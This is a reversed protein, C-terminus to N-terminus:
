ATEDRQALLILCGDEQVIRKVNHFYTARHTDLVLLHFCYSDLVIPFEGTQFEKLDLINGVCFEIELGAAAARQRAREIATEPIDVGIYHYGLGTLFLGNTGDGCGLDLLKTGQPSLVTKQLLKRLRQFAKEQSTGEGLYTCGEEYAVRYNHDFAKFYSHSDFKM